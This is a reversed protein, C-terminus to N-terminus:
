MSAIRKNNASIYDLTTVTRYCVVYEESWEGVVGRGVARVRYGVSGYNDMRPEEVVLYEFSNSVLM